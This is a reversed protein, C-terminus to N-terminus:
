RHVAVPRGMVMGAVAATLIISRTLSGPSSPLCAVPDAGGSTGSHWGGLCPGGWLRSRGPGRDSVTSFCRHHLLELCAYQLRQDGGGDDIAWRWGQDDLVRLPQAPGPSPPDARCQTSSGDHGRWRGLAQPPPLGVVLGARDGNRAALVRCGGFRTPQNLIASGTRSWDSMGCTCFIARKEMSLGGWIMDFRRSVVSARGAPDSSLAQGLCLCFIPLSSSVMWSMRTCAPERGRDSNSWVVVFCSSLKRAACGARCGQRQDAEPEAQEVGLPGLGMAPQILWCVPTGTVM